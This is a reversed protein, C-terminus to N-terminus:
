SINTSEVWAVMNRADVEPADGARADIATAVGFNGILVPQDAQRLTAAVPPSIVEAAVVVRGPPDIATEWRSILESPPLWGIMPELAAAFGARTLGAQHRAAAVRRCALSVVDPQYRRHVRLDILNSPYRSDAM